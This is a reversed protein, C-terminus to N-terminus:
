HVGLRPSFVVGRRCAGREGAFSGSHMNRLDFHGELSPAMNKSSLLKERASRVQFLSGCDRNLPPSGSFRRAIAVVFAISWMVLVATSRM